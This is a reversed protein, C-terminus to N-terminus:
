TTAGHHDRSFALCGSIASVSAFFAVMITLL